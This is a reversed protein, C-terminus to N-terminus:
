LESDLCTTLMCMTDAMVRLDNWWEEYVLIAIRQNVVSVEGLYPSARAKNKSSAYVWRRRQDRGGRLNPCTGCDGLDEIMEGDGYVLIVIRQNVVSVEGLYPSARTRNKSRAHAWRRRQRRGGRLNPCTGCDGLSQQVLLCFFSRSLFFGTITLIM